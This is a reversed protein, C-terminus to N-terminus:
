ILKMQFSSKNALIPIIQLDIAPGSAFRFGTPHDNSKLQSGSGIPRQIADLERHLIRRFSTEFINLQQPRRHISTSPAERVSEPVAAITEPTRM